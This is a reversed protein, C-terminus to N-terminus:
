SGRDEPRYRRPYDCHALVDCGDVLTVMDTFYREMLNHPDGAELGSLIRLQPFM